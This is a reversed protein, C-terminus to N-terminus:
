PSPVTLIKGLVHPTHVFMLEVGNEELYLALSTSVLAVFGVLTMVLRVFKFKMRAPVPVRADVRFM